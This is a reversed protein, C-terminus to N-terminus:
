LEPVTLNFTENRDEALCLHFGRKRSLKVYSLRDSRSLLGGTATATGANELADPEFFSATVYFAGGLDDTGEGVAQAAEVLTEMEEGTVPDRSDNLDAVVLPNGMRDRLVVDFDRREVGDELDVEV